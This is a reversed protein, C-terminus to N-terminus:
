ADVYWCLYIRQCFLGLRRPSAQIPSLHCNIKARRRGSMQFQAFQLKLQSGTWPLSMWVALVWVLACVKNPSLQCLPKQSERASLQVDCRGASKGPRVPAGAQGWNPGHTHLNTHWCEEQLSLPSCSLRLIFLTSDTHANHRRGHQPPVETRNLAKRKRECWTNASLLVCILSLHSWRPLLYSSSCPGFRWMRPFALPRARRSERRKGSTRTARRGRQAAQVLRAKRSTATYGQVHPLGKPRALCESSCDTYLPLLLFLGTCAVVLAYAATTEQFPFAFPSSSSSCKRYCVMWATVLCLDVRWFATRIGVTHFDSSTERPAFCSPAFSSAVRVVLAVTKEESFYVFM